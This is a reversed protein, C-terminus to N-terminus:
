QEAAQQALATQIAEREQVLVEPLALLGALAKIRGRTQENEQNILQATQEAIQQEIHAQLFPWGPSIADLTQQIHSLRADPTM